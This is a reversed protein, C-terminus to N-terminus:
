VPWPLALATIGACLIATAIVMMWDTPRTADQIDIDHNMTPARRTNATNPTDVSEQSAARALSQDVDIASSAM